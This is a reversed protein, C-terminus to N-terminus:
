PRPIQRLHPRRPAVCLCQFRTVAQAAATRSIRSEADAGNFAGTNQMEGGRKRANSLVISTGGIPDRLIATILERLM